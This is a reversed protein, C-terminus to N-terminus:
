CKQTVDPHTTFRMEQQIDNLTDIMQYLATSSAAGSLQDFDEKRLGTTPLDIM